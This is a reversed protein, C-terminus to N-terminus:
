CTTAWGPSEATEAMGRFGIGTTIVVIDAHLDIVKADTRAPHTRRHRVGEGARSRDSTPVVGSWPWPSTTPVDSPPSWCLSGTLVPGLATM